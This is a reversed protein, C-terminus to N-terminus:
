SQGPAAGPLQPLQARRAPHILQPRQREEPV